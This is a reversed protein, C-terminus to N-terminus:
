REGKRRFVLFHELEGSRRPSLDGACGSLLMSPDGDLSRGSYFPSRTDTGFPAAPIIM